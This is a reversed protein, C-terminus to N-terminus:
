YEHSLAGITIQVLLASKVGLRCARAALPGRPQFAEFPGERQLKAQSTDGRSVEM